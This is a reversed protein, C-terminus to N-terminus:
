RVPSSANNKRKLNCLEAYGRRPEILGQCTPGCHEFHGSWPTHHECWARVKDHWHEAHEALAGCSECRFADLGAARKVAAAFDAPPFEIGLLRCVEEEVALRGDAYGMKASTRMCDNVNHARDDTEGGCMSCIAYREGSEDSRSVTPFRTRLSGDPGSTLNEHADTM